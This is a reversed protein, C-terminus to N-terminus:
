DEYCNDSNKHSLKDIIFCIQRLFPYDRLLRNVTQGRSYHVALWFAASVESQSSVNLLILKTAEKNNQIISKFLPSIIDSINIQYIASDDAKVKQMFFSSLPQVQETPLYSTKNSLM